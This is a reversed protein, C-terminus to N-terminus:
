SSLQELWPYFGAMCFAVGAAFSADHYIGFCGAAMFAIYKLRLRGM